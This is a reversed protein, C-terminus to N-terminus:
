MNRELLNIFILNRLLKLILVPMLLILKMKKPDYKHDKVKRYGEQNYYISCAILTFNDEVKPIKNKNARNGENGGYFWCYDLFDTFYVGKGHQYHRDVSKKFLGTLICSIPEISTGHFLIKEVRNPCKKREQEFKEINEREIIVLSIISFEFISERKAKEFEKDFLKIHDNYKSLLFKIDNIEKIDNQNLLNIMEDVQKSNIEENVYDSFCLINSGDMKQLIKIIEQEITKPLVRGNKLINM